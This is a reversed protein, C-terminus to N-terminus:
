RKIVRLTKVENGQTVVVNYVGSPYRDGIQLESVDSPRVERQDIMKGTMDYVVVGVTGEGSTTLSLNFNESYPNPYAKVSFPASVVEPMVAKAPPCAIRTLTISKLASSVGCSNTAFVKLAAGTGTPLTGPFTVTITSTGQGTFSANAPVTWTYSVAGVVASATYTYTTCADVATTGSLTTIAGMTNAVKFSKMAASGCPNSAVLTIATTTSLPAYYVVTFGLNSTTISNTTNDPNDVSTVISGTPGTITYTQANLGAAYSYSYSTGTCLGTVQGVLAAPATVAATRAVALTAATLSTGVGNSSTVTVNGASFDSAYSVVISTSGQGSVISAGSPVTWTYGNSFAGAVAAITYTATSETGAISCINTRNTTIAGPKVPLARTLSLVKATVSTLGCGNVAKVSIVLPTTGTPTVVDAFNVTIENSTGGSLQNVGAPLTWTYSVAGAVTAAKLTLVTSTAMFPGAAVVATTPTASLPNTMVLTAPLAPVTAAVALTAATASTGVGNSSTVTVSGAANFSSSYSVVISTSGQGSVISAGTPVTWTYGNEFAGVVPLITYTVTSESGAILCVNALTTTIAGPKAPLARTMTLVKATASTGCGAVSRVSATIATTGPAVDAFNIVLVRDTAPNGSVVNVGTPLTWTYSTATATLAATLTLETTTGVFPGVALVATAPTASAPNTLVVTAPAVPLVRTLALSKAVSLCGNSNVSQVAIALATTGESVGAYDVVLSTTGQGSVINAGVPVTWTYSSAGAVDAISYTLETSTGVYSCIAATGTIAVPTTPLAVVTVTIMTRASEVGTGLKQSVWYSKVGLTTTAVVPAAPLATAIVATSYWKLTYGPYSSVSASLPATVVAGKCLTLNTVGPATPTTGEDVTGDCDDDIGNAVETGGPHVSANSDDCDTNDTVYGSPQSCANSSSSSNGYGDGDADAYYTVSRSITLHLIHDVTCGTEPNTTVDGPYDGSETYTTGNNSWTYSDCATQTEEETTGTNITLHLTELVPCAGSSNTATYTGSTTYTQGNVSWTYNDCAAITTSNTLQSVTGVSVGTATLNSCGTNSVVITHSGASLGSVTFSGSSLTASQSSGGDVTYTIASVSPTPSLSITSTGNSGGFCTVGTSATQAAATACTQFQVNYPGGVVLTGAAGVHLPTSNTNTNCYVTVIVNNVGAGSAYQITLTGQNATFPLSSTFRFRAFKKSVGSPLTVTSALPIPSNTWVMRKSAPQYLVTGLNNLGLFENASPQSICTFTGTAGAPLMSADHTVSGALGAMTMPTSGSNTVYVDFEVTTSTPSSVNALTVTAQNGPCAQSYGAVSLMMFFITIMGLGLSKIM